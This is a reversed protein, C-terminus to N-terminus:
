VKVRKVLGGFDLIHSAKFLIVDSPASIRKLLSIIEEKQKAKYIKHEDMGTELAGKKILDAYQGYIILAKLPIRGAQRGVEQHWYIATKGLELMDGLVAIKTSSFQKLTNLAAEMSAPNANYSDDIISIGDIGKCFCLRGPLPSFTELAYKISEPPLKFYVGVAAAALLAYIQHKGLLQTQISLTTEPLVLTFHITNNKLFINKARVEGKKIGFGMKEKNFDRALESVLPDDQNYIFCDKIYNLLAGKEKQIGELSNLGLLHVPQINTIIGINPQAISSLIAIEGKSNTGMEICVAQYSNNLGLLTFPLGIQNNYNAENKLVAFHQTLLHAIAEKTTTKGNSGTVGILPLYSYKQRQFFALKGLAELTNDVAIIAADQSLNSRYQKKNLIVGRAGKKIAEPIFNHGDYRSGKLAIFLDNAQVSRSDDTIGSFSHVTTNKVLNGKISELVETLKWNGTQRM